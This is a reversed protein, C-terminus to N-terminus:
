DIEGTLKYGLKSMVEGNQEEILKIWKPGLEERWKSGGGGGFFFERQGKNEDFGNDKEQKQIKAIHCANVSREVRDLDIDKKGLFELIKVLWNVGDKMLDEYKIVLTPFRDETIWSDVHKSWSSVFSRNYGNSGGLTFEEAGMIYLTHEPPYKFFNMCSCFVDRPDRVIYIASHTFDKPIFPAFDEMYLNAWHTKVIPNDQNLRSIFHLLMAPRLLAEGRFDLRELPLPSVGGMLVGGADGTSTRVNNIDITGNCHYAEILHRVWTNGSKPYSALWIFGGKRDM